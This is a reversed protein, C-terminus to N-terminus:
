NGPFNSSQAGTTAPDPRGVPAGSLTLGARRALLLNQVGLTVALFILVEGSGEPAHLVSGLAAMGVRVLVTALWLVMTWRTGRTYVVGGRWSIHQTAARAAGSVAGIVLGTALLVLATASDLRHFLTKDTVLGIVILILPMALMRRTTLQREAMQRRIVWVLVLLAIIGDVLGQQLGNM